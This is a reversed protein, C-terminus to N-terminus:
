PRGCRVREVAEANEGKERSVVHGCERLARRMVKGAPTRPIAEVFVFRRPRKYRALEPSALCFREMEEENLAPSARVIFATVAEGWREHPLGAVAVESVQPHRRLVEEVESPHINEGGSIIMDDVRGVLHLDGEGDIFGADGTFYWGGRVANGTADPRNLYGSFAQPSSADVIVEGTAGRPLVEDPSVRRERDATVIRIRSHIAPRGASAPKRGLDGNATIVHMETCGYHNVFVEPQFTELCSRVLAPPMPAGASALKRVRPLDVGAAAAHRILDHFATPVLYLATIGERAICRLAQVLDLRPLTVLADNLLVFSLLTHLGMTHHLPMVWISREPRAWRHAVTMALVAAHDSRHSRLVGKPRGTTGSTYLIASHDAEGRPVDPPGDTRGALLARYPVTGEGEARGVGIRRIDRGRDGLARLARNVEDASTEDCVVGRIATDNFAHALEEGKWRFNLPVPVTGLKYLAFCTTAAAEGNRVCLAVRDGPRIGMEHLGWSVSDIRRNWEGYRFRQDGDILAEAEPHRDVAFELMTALHM